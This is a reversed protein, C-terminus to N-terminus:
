LGTLGQFNGLFICSTSGIFPLVSVRMRAMMNTRRKEVDLAIASIPPMVSQRSSSTSSPREDTGVQSIIVQDWCRSITLAHGSVPESAGLEDCLLSQGGDLPLRNDDDSVDRSQSVLVLPEEDESVSQLVPLVPLVPLIVKPVLQGGDELVSQLVPLPFVLLLLVLLPLEPMVQGGAELVLVLVPPLQVVPLMVKPLLQGGDELVSQLVPVLQSVPM